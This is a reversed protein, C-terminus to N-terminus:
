INLTCPEGWYEQPNRTSSVNEGRKQGKIWALEEIGNEREGVGQGEAGM